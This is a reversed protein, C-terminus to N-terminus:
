TEGSGLQLAVSQRGADIGDGLGDDIGIAHGQTHEAPLGHAGVTRTLKNIERNIERGLGSVDPM